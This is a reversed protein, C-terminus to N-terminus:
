RSDRRRNECESRQAATIPDAHSLCRVADVVDCFEDSVMEDCGSRVVIGGVDVEDLELEQRWSWQAPLRRPDEAVAASTRDVAIEDM